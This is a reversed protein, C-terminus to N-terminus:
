KAGSTVLDIAPAISQAHKLQDVLRNCEYTVFAINRYTAEFDYLDKYGPSFDGCHNCDFGYWFGQDYNKPLWYGVGSYTVGKHVDFQDGASPSNAQMRLAQLSSRGGFPGRMVEDNLAKLSEPLLADYKINHLPHGRPIEVYGCLTKSYGQRQIHCAYDNYVWSLHDPEHEWEELMKYEM